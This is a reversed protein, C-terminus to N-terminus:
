SNKPNNYKINYNNNNLKKKKKIIIIQIIILTMIVIIVSRGIKSIEDPFIKFHMHVTSIRFEGIIKSIVVSHLIM